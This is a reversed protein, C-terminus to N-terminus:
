ADRKRPGEGKRSRLDVGEGLMGGPQRDGRGDRRMFLFDRVSVFMRVLNMMQQRGVFFEEGLDGFRPRLQFLFEVVGEGGRRASGCNVEMALVPEM